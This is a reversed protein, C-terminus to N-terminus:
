VVYKDRGSGDSVYKQSRSYSHPKYTRNIAGFKMYNGAQPV